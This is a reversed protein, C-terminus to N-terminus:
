ISMARNRFRIRSETNAKSTKHALVRILSNGAYGLVSVLMEATDEVSIGHKVCEDILRSQAGRGNLKGESQLKEVAKRASEVTGHVIKVKAATRLRRNYQGDIKRAERKNM